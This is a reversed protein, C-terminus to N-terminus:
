CLGNLNKKTSRQINWFTDRNQLRSLVFLMVTIHLLACKQNLKKMPPTVESSERRANGRAAQSYGSLRPSPLGSFCLDFCFNRKQPVLSCWPQPSKHINYMWLTAYFLYSMNREWITLFPLFPLQPQPTFYESGQMWTCTINESALM